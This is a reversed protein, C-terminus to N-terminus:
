RLAVESDIVAKFVKVGTALVQRGPSVIVGTIVPSAFSDCTIRRLTRRRSQTCAWACM